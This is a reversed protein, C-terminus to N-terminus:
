CSVRALDRCGFDAPAGKVELGHFRQVEKVKPAPGSWGLVAAWSPGGV